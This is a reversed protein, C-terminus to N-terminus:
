EVEMHPTWKADEEPTPLRPKVPEKAKRAQEWTVICAKWDKIPKGKGQVWGNAQYFSVFELANIGNKRELCYASVEDVTPPVFRKSGGGGRLPKPTDTNLSDPILNLTDLNLSDPPNSGFDNRVEECRPAFDHPCAPLVSESEQHHPRQHRKWSVVQIVRVGDVEYRCIFPDPGSSLADLLADVDCDDYPLIAAKIRKPRDELRGAKDALTWLGAFLLRGLPEIEGLRDNMFFGPKINRSRAM